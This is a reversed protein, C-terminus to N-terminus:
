RWKEMWSGWQEDGKSRRTQLKENCNNIPDCQDSTRGKAFPIRLIVRLVCLPALFLNVTSLQLNFPFCSRPPKFRASM